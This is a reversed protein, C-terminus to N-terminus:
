LGWSQAIVTVDPCWDSNICFYVGGGTTKGPSLPRSTSFIYDRWSSRATGSTRVSSSFDRNTSRMLALKHMKNHLSPVKSLFTGSLATCLGRRRLRLLVCDLKESSGHNLKRMFIKLLAVASTIFFQFLDVATKNRYSLLEKRTYSYGSTGHSRKKPTM